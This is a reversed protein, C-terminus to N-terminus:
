FSARSKLYLQWSGIAPDSNLPFALDIHLVRGNSSRDSFIRLGVGADRLWGRNVAGPDPDGSSRGVDYFAAAGVRFMRLPFWYVKCTLESCSPTTTISGIKSCASLAPMPSADSNSGATGALSALMSNCCIIALSVAQSCVKRCNVFRSCDSALRFPM